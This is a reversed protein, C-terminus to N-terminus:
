ASAETRERASRAIEGACRELVIREIRGAVDDMTGSADIVVCREPEQSAIDLFTRRRTEQISVSDKEFRDTAGSQRRAALRRLSTEVPLDLILTLDPRADATTAAELEELFTRDLGPASGQYARTSDLFRDCLVFAGRRLAPLIVTRIHDYRAAAFLLAETEVGLQEAAGSLVIHRIADAGPSGGPERTTVVSVGREGLRAALRAIQTTKGSGDPGEFTIFCGRRLADTRPDETM